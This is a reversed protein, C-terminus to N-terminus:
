AQSTKRGLARSFAAQDDPLAEAATVGGVLDLSGREVDLVQAIAAREHRTDEARGVGV